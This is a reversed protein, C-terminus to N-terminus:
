AHHECDSPPPEPFEILIKASRRAAELAIEIDELPFVGAVLDEVPVRGAVLREIAPDFPGCRSGVLTIENVVVDTTDFDVAPAGCTSKLAITGEPRVLAVAQGPGEPTGTCEVVVDAGVGGTRELVQEKLDPSSRDFAVEAGFRLALERRSASGSVALVRVGHSRAIRTVLLGIRGAGLVLVTTGATLPTKEFTRIAAAVPEVMTGAWPSLTKPLEKAVGVPVLMREAFAGNAGRIGIARRRRCHKPMRARCAPCPDPDELAQCTLNIEATVPVGMWRDPVEEGMAQVVGMFEHGPIIPYETDYAGSYLALDTGCIGACRVRVVLDRPGPWPEECEEVVIRGPAKLVAARMDHEELRRPICDWEVNGDGPLSPHKASEGERDERHKEDCGGRDESV